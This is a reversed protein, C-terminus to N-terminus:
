KETKIQPRCLIGGEKDIVIEFKEEITLTIPTDSYIDFLLKNFKKVGYKETYITDPLNHDKLFNKLQKHFDELGIISNTYAKPDLGGNKIRVFMDFVSKPLRHDIKSHLALNCYFNLTSFAEPRNDIELIKRIRSLIYVVDPESIPVTKLKETLKELIQERAM